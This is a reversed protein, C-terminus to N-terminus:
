RLQVASSNLKEENKLKRNVKVAVMYYIVCQILLWIVNETVSSVSAGMQNLKLLADSAVVVPLFKSIIVMIDPMSETPWVFGTLFIMPVSSAIFLLFSTERQTFLIVLSQGLFSVAFLFIVLILLNIFFHVHVHYVAIQPLAYLFIMGYVTYVLVHAVARFFTLYICGVGFNTIMPTRYERATGGLMTIGILLTQQLIMILILPYLYVEYSGSPNFLANEVNNVPLRLASAEEYSLGKKMLSRIETGAGFSGLVSSIGTAVQKYVIMYSNDEYVPIVVKMGRKLNKEFDKPIEIFARTENRLYQANAQAFSDATNTVKLMESADLARTLQRSMPSHDLDVVGVPVERLINHSFPLLYFGSYFIISLVFVLILGEDTFMCRLENCILKIVRLFLTRWSIVTQAM